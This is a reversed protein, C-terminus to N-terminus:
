FAGAVPRQKCKPQNTSLWQLAQKVSKQLYFEFYDGGDYGVHRLAAERGCRDLLLISPTFPTGYREAFKIPAVVQMNFDKIEPSTDLELERIVVQEDWAGSRLLPLMVEKMLAQCYSCDSRTVVLLLIRQDGIFLRADTALDAAQMDTRELAVALASFWLSFLAILSTLNKRNM